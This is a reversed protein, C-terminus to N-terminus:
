LNYARERSFLAGITAVIAVSGIARIARLMMREGEERLHAVLCVFIAVHGRRPEPVEDGVDREAGAM